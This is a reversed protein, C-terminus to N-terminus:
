VGFDKQPCFVSNLRTIFTTFSQLKRRFYKLTLMPALSTLTLPFDTPDNIDPTIDGRKISNSSAGVSSLTEKHRTQM